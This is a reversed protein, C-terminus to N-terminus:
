PVTSNKRKSCGSRTSSDSQILRVLSCDALSNRVNITYQSSCRVTSVWLNIGYRWRASSAAINVLTYRSSLWYLLRHFPEIQVNSCIKVSYWYKTIALLIFGQFVSEEFAAFQNSSIQHRLRIERVNQCSDPFLRLDVRCAVPVCSQDNLSGKLCRKTIGESMQGFIVFTWYKPSLAVNNVIRLLSNSPDTGLTSMCWIGSTISAM